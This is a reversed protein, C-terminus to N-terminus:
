AMGDLAGVAAGRITRRKTSRAKVSEQQWPASVGSSPIVWTKRLGLEACRVPGLRQSTMRVLMASGTPNRRNRTLVEIRGGFMETDRSRRTSKGITTLVVACM